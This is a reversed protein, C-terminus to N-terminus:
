VSYAYIGRLRRAQAHLLATYFHCDPSPPPTSAVIGSLFEAAQSGTVSLLARHPIPAVTPASRLLSRVAAPLMITKGWPSLHPAGSPGGENESGDLEAVGAVRTIRCGDMDIYQSGNIAASLSHRSCESQTILCPCRGESHRFSCVFSSGSCHRDRLCAVNSHLLPMTRENDRGSKCSRM